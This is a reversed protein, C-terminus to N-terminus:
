WQQLPPPAPSQSTGYQYYHPQHQGNFQSFGVMNEHMIPSSISQTFDQHDMAANQEKKLKRQRYVRVAMVTAAGYVVVGVSVCIGIIGGRSLGGGGGGNSNGSGNNGHNGSNGSTDNPDNM